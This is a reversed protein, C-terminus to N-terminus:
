RSSFQQMLRDLAVVSQRRNHWRFFLRDALRARRRRPQYDLERRFHTGTAAPSLEYTITVETGKMFPASVEGVISFRRPADCDLVRWTIEGVIPGAKVAEHFRDGVRPAAPGRASTSSPHWEHWRTADIVYAFVQEPCGRVVVDHVMRTM